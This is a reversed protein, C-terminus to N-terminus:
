KVEKGNGIPVIRNEKLWVIADKFEQKPIELKEKKWNERAEYLISDKSIEKNRLILNNWASYTTAIVEAQRTTKVEVFLDIVRNVEILQTKFQDKARTLFPKFNEGKVYKHSTIGDFKKKEEVHFWNGKSALPEVVQVLHKFSAPGAAMKIANRGFEVVVHKEIIEILKEGKTRYLNKGSQAHAQIALALILAQKPANKKSRQKARRQEVPDQFIDYVGGSEAVKNLQEEVDM